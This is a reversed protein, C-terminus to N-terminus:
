SRDIFTPVYEMHPSRNKIQFLPTIDMKKGSLFLELLIRPNLESLQMCKNQVVDQVRNLPLNVLKTQSYCFGKRYMIKQSQGAWCGEFSNPNTYALQEVDDIIDSKKYIVGDISHAYAWDGSAQKFQWIYGEKVKQLKPVLQRSRIMYNYTIDPCLRIYCGYANYRNMVTIADQIAVYDKVVCDDTAFMIYPMRTKHLIDLFFHKFDDDPQESQKTFYITPFTNKVIQYGEEFSTDSTRYLVFIDQLGTVYLTVSELLAYLQLPRDYSFIILDASHSTQMCMSAICFLTILININM